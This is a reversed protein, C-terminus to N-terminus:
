GIRVGETRLYEMFEKLVKERRKKNKRDIRKMEWKFPLAPYKEDEYKLILAL